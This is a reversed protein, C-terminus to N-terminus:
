KCSSHKIMWENLSTQYEIIMDDDEGASDDDDDDFCKDEDIKKEYIIPWGCM